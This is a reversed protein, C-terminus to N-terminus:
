LISLLIVVPDNAILFMMLRPAQAAQNAGRRQLCSECSQRLAAQCTFDALHGHAQWGVLARHGRPCQKAYAGIHTNGTVTLFM